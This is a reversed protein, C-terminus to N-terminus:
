MNCIFGKKWRKTTNLQRKGAKNQATNHTVENKLRRNFYTEEKERMSDAHSVLRSSDAEGCHVGGMVLRCRPHVGRQPQAPVLGAVPQSPQHDGDGPVRLLPLVVPLM